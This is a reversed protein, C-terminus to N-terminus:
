KIRELNMQTTYLYIPSYGELIIDKCIATTVIMSKKLKRELMGNQNPVNCKKTKELLKRLNSIGPM